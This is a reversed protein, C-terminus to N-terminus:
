TMIGATPDDADTIRLAQSTLVSIVATSQHTGIEISPNKRGGPDARGLVCFSCDHGRCTSRPKGGRDPARQRATTAIQQDYVIRELRLIRMGFAGSLGELLPVRVRQQRPEIMLSLARDDKHHLPKMGIIKGTMEQLLSTPCM